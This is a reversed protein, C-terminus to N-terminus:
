SDKCRRQKRRLRVARFTNGSSRLRPPALSFFNPCLHAFSETGFDFVSFESFETHLPNPSCTQQKTAPTLIACRECNVAQVKVSDRDSLVDWIGDTALIVFRLTMLHGFLSQIFRLAFTDDAGGNATERKLDPSMLMGIWRSIDADRGTPTVLLRGPVEHVTIEPEASVIDPGSTKCVGPRAQPWPWAKNSLLNATGPKSIKFIRGDLGKERGPCIIDFLDYLDWAWTFGM